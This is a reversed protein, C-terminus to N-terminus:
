FDFTAQHKISESYIGYDKYAILAEKLDLLIEPLKTQIDEPLQIYPKPMPKPSKKQELSKDWRPLKIQLLEYRKWCFSSRWSKDVLTPPEGGGAESFKFMLLIEQWCFAWICENADEVRLRELRRLWYGRDHDITWHTDKSKLHSIPFGEDERRSVFYNWEFEELKYKKISEDSIMENVFAM